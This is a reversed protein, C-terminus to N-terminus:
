DHANAQFLNENPLPNNAIQKIFDTMGFFKCDVGHYLPQYDNGRGTEM